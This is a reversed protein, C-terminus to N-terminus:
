IKSQKQIAATQRSLIATAVFNLSIQRMQEGFGPLEKDAINLTADPTVDRASPGTGGTTLILDCYENDVLDILTDQILQQDDPILREMTMWPSTIASELWEKLKPIGEDKYINTSARDSTSVLGIRTESLKAIKM